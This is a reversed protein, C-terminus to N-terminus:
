VTEKKRFRNIVALAIKKTLFLIGKTALKGIFFMFVSLGAFMLGVGILFVGSLAKGVITLLVGALTGGVACVAFAGFVAWLTIIASWLSIYLSFLIAFVAILILLWVPSGLVILLIEWAAITRKTQNQEM